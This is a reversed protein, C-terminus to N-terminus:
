EYEVTIAANSSVAVALGTSFALGGFATNAGFAGVTNSSKANVDLVGQGFRHTDDVRVIAGSPFTGTISYLSGAGTKVVTNSPASIYAYQHKGREM